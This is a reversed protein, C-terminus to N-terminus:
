TLTRLKAELASLLPQAMNPTVHSDLTSIAAMIADLETMARPEETRIEAIGTHIAAAAKAAQEWTWTHATAWALLNTRITAMADRIRADRAAAATAQHQEERSRRTLAAYASGALRGWVLDRAHSEIASVILAVLFLAAVAGQVVLPSFWSPMTGLAM